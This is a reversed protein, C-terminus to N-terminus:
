TFLNTLVPNRGFVSWGYSARAQNNSAHYSPNKNNKVQSHQINFRYNSESQDLTAASPIFALSPLKLKTEDSGNTDERKYTYKNYKLDKSTEKTSTFELQLPSSPETGELTASNPQNDKNHDKLGIGSISLVPRQEHRGVYPLCILETEGVYVKSSLVLQASSSQEFEVYGYGKPKKSDFAYIIYANKIKGFETFRIALSDSDVFDPLNQIFVKRKKQDEKWEQKENKRSAIQVDVKRGEIVHQMQAVSAADSASCLTVFAYGKSEKTKKDRMVRVRNVKCIQEFHSQITKESM